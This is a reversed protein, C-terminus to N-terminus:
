DKINIHEQHDRQQKFDFTRVYLNQIILSNAHIM